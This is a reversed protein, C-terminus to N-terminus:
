AGEAESFRAQAAGTININAAIPGNIFLGADGGVGLNALYTTSLSGYFGGATTEIAQVTSLPITEIDAYLVGAIIKKIGDRAIIHSRSQSSSGISGGVVLNQIAGHEVIIDGTLNGVVQMNMLEAREGGAPEPLEVGDLLNGGIRIADQGSIGNVRIKRVDGITRLEQLVVTATSQLMDIDQVSALAAGPSAGLIKINVIQPVNANIIVKELRETHEGRITFTTPSGTVTTCLTVRYSGDDQVQVISSTGATPVATVTPDAKCTGCLVGLCVIIFASKLRV